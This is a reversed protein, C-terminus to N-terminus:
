VLSRVSVIFALLDQASTMCVRLSCLHWGLSSYGALSETVMSPSFLINWSLILNVHYREM